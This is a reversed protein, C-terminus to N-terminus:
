IKLFIRCGQREAAASSVSRTPIWYARTSNPNQLHVHETNVRKNSVGSYMNVETRNGSEIKRHIQPVPSVNIHVLLSIKQFSILPPNYFVVKVVKNLLVSLVRSKEVDHEIWM